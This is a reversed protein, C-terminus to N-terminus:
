PLTEEGNPPATIRPDGIDCSYGCNSCRFLRGDATALQDFLVLMPSGCLPCWFQDQRGPQAEPGHGPLAQTPEFPPMTQTPAFADSTEPPEFGPVAQTPALAESTEPLESAPVTQTPAFVDSIEPLESVPMAQTPAFADPTEEPEFAPVTQTPELGALEEAPELAALTETPMDFAEGPPPQALDQFALGEIRETALDDGAGRLQAVAPAYRQDAAARMWREAEEPSHRAATGLLHMEGLRYQAAALGQGAALTILREAEALNRAVGRGFLYM